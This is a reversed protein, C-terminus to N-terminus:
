TARRICTAGRSGEPTGHVGVEARRGDCGLERDARVAARLCRVSEALAITAAIGKTNGWNGSYAAGCHSNSVAWSSSMSAAMTADMASASAMVASCCTRRVARSRVRSAPRSRDTGAGMLGESRALCRAGVWPAALGTVTASLVVASLGTV